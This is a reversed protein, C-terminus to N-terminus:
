LDGWVQELRKTENDFNLEQESDQVKAAAARIIELREEKETKENDNIM